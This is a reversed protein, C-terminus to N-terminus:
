GNWSAASLYVVIRRWDPHCATRQAVFPVEKLHRHTWQMLPPVFERFLDCVVSIIISYTPRRSQVNTRSARFARWSFKIGEAHWLPLDIQVLTTGTRLFLSRMWRAAFFGALVASFNANSKACLQKRTHTERRGILQGPFSRAKASLHTRLCSCVCVREPCHM